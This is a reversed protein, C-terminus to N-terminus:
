VRGGRGQAGAGTELPFVGRYGLTRGLWYRTFPYYLYHSIKSFPVYILFFATLFFYAVLHLEGGAINGPAALVGAAFWITLLALSFFDDPSSIRRVVPDTIRRVMRLVGVAVGAGITIQLLRVLVVSRLLGPGYPIIFSLAINATVALHFVVFQAYFGPRRRTSELTWPMAIAALSYAAGKAANTRVGATTPQRDRGRKFSFLWVLRAVYVCAMIALALEQLRHEALHLLDTM